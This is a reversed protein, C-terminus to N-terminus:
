VNACTKMTNKIQINKLYCILYITRFHGLYACLQFGLNIRLKPINLQNAEVKVKCNHDCIELLSWPM